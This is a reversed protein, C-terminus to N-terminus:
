QYQSARVVLIHGIGVQVDITVRPALKISTTGKPAIPNPDFPGFPGFPGNEYGVDSVNGLGVHSKLNVVADNPVVVTLVGAAVSSSVVYGAVPFQVSSLNVTSSGFETRYFHQVQGLTQPQWVRNGVGGSLPVGTSVLFGLFAGSALIIVTLFTLFMVAVARRITFQRRSQRLSLVALGVLYALWVLAFDRGFKPAASATTVFIAAIILVAALLSYRIWRSKSRPAADDPEESVVREIKSRPILAWMALYIALGLLWVVTLVVFVVRVINPDIDFREGVGGAVGAVVRKQNSRHLGSESVPEVTAAPVENTPLTDSM